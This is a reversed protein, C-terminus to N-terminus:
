STAKRADSPSEDKPDLGETKASQTEIGSAPANGTAGCRPCDRTKTGEAKSWGMYQQGTGKCLHCKDTREEWTPLWAEYAREDLVFKGESGPLPRKYNTRGKYKGREKAWPYVGGEYMTYQWDKPERGHHDLSEFSHWVWDPHLNYREKLFETRLDLGRKPAPAEEGFLDAGPVSARLVSVEEPEAQSPGTQSASAGKDKNM